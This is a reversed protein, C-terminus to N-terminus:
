DSEIFILWVTASAKWKFFKGKSVASVSEHLLFMSNSKSVDTYFFVICKESWQWPFRRSFSSWDQCRCSHGSAGSTPWTWLLLVCGRAYPLFSCSLTAAKQLIVRHDPTPKNRSLHPVQSLNSALVAKLKQTLNLTVVNCLLAPSPAPTPAISKLLESCCDLLICM